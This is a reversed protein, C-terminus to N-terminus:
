TPAVPSTCDAVSSSADKGAAGWGPGHGGEARSHGPRTGALAGVASGPVAQSPSRPGVRAGHDPAVRAGHDPAVRAGHDPAVRAGHDPAVRAGHDPAVRAGHDPAARCAGPGPRDQNPGPRPRSRSARSLRRRVRPAPLSVRRTVHCQSARLSLHAACAGRPRRETHACAGRLLLRQLHGRGRGQLPSKTPAHPV